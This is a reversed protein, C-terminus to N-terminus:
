DYGLVKVPCYHNRRFELFFELFDQGFRRLADREHKGLFNHPQSSRVERQANVAFVHREVAHADNLRVGQRINQAPNGSGRIACVREREVHCSEHLFGCSKGAAADLRGSPTNIMGFRRSDNRGRDVGFLHEVAQRRETDDEGCGHVAIFQDLGSRDNLGHSDHFDIRVVVDHAENREATVVELVNLISVSQDPVARGRETFAPVVTQNQIGSHQLAFLANRQGTGIRFGPMGILHRFRGFQSRLRLCVAIGHGHPVIVVAIAFKIQQDAFLCSIRRALYANKEIGARRFGRDEAIIRIQRTCITVPSNGCCVADANRRSEGINIAVTHIVQDVPGAVSPDFVCQLAICRKRLITDESRTYGDHRVSRCNINAITSHDVQDVPVAITMQIDDGSGHVSLDIQEDVVAVPGEGRCLRKGNLDFVAPRSRGNHIQVAVAVQINNGPVGLAIQVSEQVIAVTRKSDHVDSCPFAVPATRENAVDVTVTDEVNSDAILAAFDGDQISFFSTNNHLIEVDIRGRDERSCWGHLDLIILDRNGPFGSGIVEANGSVLDPDPIGFILGGARCQHQRIDVDSCVGILHSRDVFGPQYAPARTARELDLVHRRRHQVTERGGLDPFVGDPEGPFRSRVIDRDRTIANFQIALSVVDAERDLENGTQFETVILVSDSGNVRGAQDGPAFFLGERHRFKRVRQVM